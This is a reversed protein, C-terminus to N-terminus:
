AAPWGDVPHPYPFLTEVTTELARAFQLKNKDSPRHDGNEIHCVTYANIGCMKALETQTLGAAQRAARLRAGWQLEFEARTM